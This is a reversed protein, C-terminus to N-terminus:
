ERELEIVVGWVADQEIGELGPEIAVERGQYRGRNRRGDIDQVELTPAADLADRPLSSELHFAGDADTLTQVGAMSVQIGRLPKGNKARVVRGRLPVYEIAPIGYMPERIPLPEPAVIPTAVDMPPIGYEVARPDVEDASAGTSVMGGLLLSLAKLLKRRM